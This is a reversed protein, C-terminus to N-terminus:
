KLMSSLADNAVSSVTIELKTVTVPCVLTALVGRKARHLRRQNGPQPAFRGTGRFSATSSPRAMMEAMSTRASWSRRCTRGSGPESGRDWGGARGRDRHCGRGVASGQGSGPGPGSSPLRSCLAAYWRRWLLLVVVVPGLDGGVDDDLVGVQGRRRAPEWRQHEDGSVHLDGAVSQHHVVRKLSAAARGRPLGAYCRCGGVQCQHWTATRRSPRWAGCCSRPTGM